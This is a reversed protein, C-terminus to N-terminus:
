KRNKIANMVTTVIIALIAILLCVYISVCAANVLKFGTVSLGMKIASASLESTGAAYGVFVLIAFGALVLLVKYSSKFNKVLKVCGFYLMLLLTVIGMLYGVIVFANELKSCSEFSKIDNQLASLDETKKKVSASADILAASSIMSNAAKLYSRDFLYDHKVAAYENDMQTLYKELQDYNTVGNFGKVYADKKDCTAFLSESRTPFNAKYEKFNNENLDKLDCIYTYLIDKQRQQTNLQANFESLQKQYKEVVATLKEPTATQIDSLLAPNKAEILQVQAFNDKKKDDFAVYSFWCAILIDIIAVAFTIYKVIRINM